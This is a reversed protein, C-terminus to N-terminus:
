HVTYMHSYTHPHHPPTHGVRGGVTPQPLAAARLNKRSLGRSPEGVCSMDELSCKRRSGNGVHVVAVVAVGM